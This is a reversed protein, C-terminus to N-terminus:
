EYSLVLGFSWQPALRVLQFPELFVSSVGSTKEKMEASKSIQSNRRENQLNRFDSKGTYTSLEGVIGHM